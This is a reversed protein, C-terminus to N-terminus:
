ENKKNKNRSVVYVIVMAGFSIVLLWLKNMASPQDNHPRMEAQQKNLDNAKIFNQIGLTTQLFEKEETFTRGAAIGSADPTGDKVLKRSHECFNVMLLNFRQYTTYMIWEENKAFSMMCASSCDFDVKIHQEVTGKYLEIITFYATAIGNVKCPAVSDVKGFFIVNYKASM